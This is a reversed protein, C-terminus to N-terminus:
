ATLEGVSKVSGDTKKYVTNLCKNWLFVQFFDAPKQVVDEHSPCSLNRAHAAAPSIFYMLYQQDAVDGQIQTKVANHQYALWYAAHKNLRKTRIAMFHVDFTQVVEQFTKGACYKVLFHAHAYKSKSVHARRLADESVVCRWDPGAYNHFMRLTDAIPVFQTKPYLKREDEGNANRHQLVPMMSMDVTFSAADETVPMQLLQNRERDMTEEDIEKVTRKGSGNKQRKPHGQSTESQRPAGSEPVTSTPARAETLVVDVQGHSTILPPGIAAHMDNDNAPSVCPAHETADPKLLTREPCCRHVLKRNMLAEVQSQLRMNHQITKARAAQEVRLQQTAWDCEAGADSLQRRLFGIEQTYSEVDAAIKQQVMNTIHELKIETSM